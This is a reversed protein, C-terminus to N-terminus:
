GFIEKAEHPREAHDEDIGDATRCQIEIEKPGM